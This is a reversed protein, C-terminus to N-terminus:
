VGVLASCPQHRHVGHRWSLMSLAAAHVSCPTVAPFNPQLWGPAAACVPRAPTWGTGRTCSPRGPGPAPRASSPCWSSLEASLPHWCARPFPTHGRTQTTRCGVRHRQVGLVRQHGVQAGLALRAVQVLLQGPVPAPQVGHQSSLVGPTGAHVRSPPTVAPNHPAAALGTGSYVWCASTDLRHGSHLAPSRSRSSAPSLRQVSLM